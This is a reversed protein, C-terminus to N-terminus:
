TALYNLSLLIRPSQLVISKLLHNIEEIVRTIFTSPEKGTGSEGLLLTTTSTESVQDAMELKEKMIRSVSILESPGKGNTLEKKLNINESKMDQYLRANEIAVGALNSFSELIYQDEITFSGGGKKNIVELVGITRNKLTLPVCLISKTQYNIKKSIDKFFRADKQVDEVLLPKSHKAVWGAIGEGIKLTFRKVEEGKDGLAVQFYLSETAEDILLLSSAEAEVMRNASDMIRKLVENIELTSNILTSITLIEDIDSSKIRSEM